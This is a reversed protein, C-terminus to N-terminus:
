GAAQGDHGSVATRPRNLGPGAAPTRTTLARWVVRPDFLAWPPQLMNMAQAFRFASVEDRDSITHVRGTFWHLFHVLPPAQSNLEAYRMDETTAMLWPNAIVGAAERQFRRSLGAMEGDPRRRRQEHLCRGLALGDLAATTMGQGYIPNFSCLADGLVVLNEPFRPMREYCRRLNSPLKYTHIPGVPELDKIMEYVDPQALSRAFELFGAEDTPPYDGLVGGLTVLWQDPDETPLIVGLRKQPLEPFVFLSKWQKPLPRTRRFFRTTYGLDAAVALEQVRPYGLGELWQPTRSGRGSADVV